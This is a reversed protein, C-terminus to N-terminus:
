PLAQPASARNAPALAREYNLSGFVKEGIWIDKVDNIFHRKTQMSNDVSCM